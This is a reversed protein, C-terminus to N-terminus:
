PLPVYYGNAVLAGPSCSPSPLTFVLEIADGTALELYRGDDACMAAAADAACADPRLTAGDIALAVSDLYTRERKEETIRIRRTAACSSPGLELTATAEAGPTALNRLIEGRYSWGGPTQM